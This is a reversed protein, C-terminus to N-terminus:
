MIRFGKGSLWFDKILFPPTWCLDTTFHQVQFGPMRPELQVPDVPNKQQPLKRPCSVESGRALVPSVWSLCSYHSSNGHYSQFVTSLPRFCWQHFFAKPFMTLFSSFRIIKEIREFFIDMVSAMNLVNGSFLIKFQDLSFCTSSLM